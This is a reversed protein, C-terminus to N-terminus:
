GNVKERATTFADTAQKLGVSVISDRTRKDIKGASHMENASLATRLGDGIKPLANAIIEGYATVHVERLLEAREFSRDLRAAMEANLSVGNRKAAAELKARLPERLRTSIHVTDTKARKKM